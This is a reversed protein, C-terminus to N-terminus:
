GMRLTGVGQLFEQLNRRAPSSAGLLLDVPEDLGADKSLLRPTPVLSANSRVLVEEQVRLEAADGPLRKGERFGQAACKFWKGRVNFLCEGKARDGLSTIRLSAVDVQGDYTSDRKQFERFCKM